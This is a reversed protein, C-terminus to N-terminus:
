PNPTRLSCRRASAARATSSSSGVAAHASLREPLGGHRAGWIHVTGRVRHGLGLVLQVPVNERRQVGGLRVDSFRVRGLRADSLLAVVIRRQEGVRFQHGRIRQRIVELQVQRRPFVLRLGDRGPQTRTRAPEDLEGGAGALGHDGEIGDRAQAHAGQDDYRRDLQQALPAGFDDRPQACRARAHPCGAAALMVNSRDRDDGIIGSGHPPSAQRAVAEHHEILHVMERGLAVPSNHLLTRGWPSQAQAGGQLACITAVVIQRGQDSREDEGAGGRLERGVLVDGGIALFADVDIQRGLLLQAVRSEHRFPAPVHRGM